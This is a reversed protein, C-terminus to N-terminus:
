EERGGKKGGVGYKGRHMLKFSMYAGMEGEERGEGGGRVGEGRGRREGGGRGEGEREPSRHTRSPM